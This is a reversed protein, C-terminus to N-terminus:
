ACSVLNSPERNSMFQTEVVLVIASSKMWLLRLIFKIPPLRHLKCRSNEVTSELSGSGCMLHQRLMAEVELYHLKFQHHHALLPHDVNHRM